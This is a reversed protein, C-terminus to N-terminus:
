RAASWCSRARFCPGVASASARGILIAALFVAWVSQTANLPAVVSVRGHDFAEVLSAYALGLTVGAAAFAPLATQLKARLGRGRVLLPYVLVVASAGLLSAASAALPPATAGRAM